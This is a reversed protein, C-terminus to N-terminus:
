FKSVYNWSNPCKERAFKTRRGTNTKGNVKKTIERFLTAPVIFRSGNQKFLQCIKEKNLDVSM